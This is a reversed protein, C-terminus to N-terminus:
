FPFRSYTIPMFTHSMHATSTNTMALIGGSNIPFPSDVLTRTKDTGSEVVLSVNPAQEDFAEGVLFCWEWSGGPECDNLRFCQRRRSSGTTGAHIQCRVLITTHLSDNPLPKFTTIRAPPLPLRRESSVSRLGLGITSIPPFGISQCM